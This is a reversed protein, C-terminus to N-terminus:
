VRMWESVRERLFVCESQLGLKGSELNLSESDTIEKDAFLPLEQFNSIKFTTQPETKGKKEFGWKGLDLLFQFFPFSSVNEM